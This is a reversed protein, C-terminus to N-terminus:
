APQTALSAPRVRVASARNLFCCNATESGRNHEVRLVFDSSVEISIAGFQHNVVPYSTLHSTLKMRKLAGIACHCLPLLDLPREPTMGSVQATPPLALHAQVSPLALLHYGISRTVFPLRAQQLLRVFAPYGFQGDLRLLATSAALGFSALFRKICDLVCAM